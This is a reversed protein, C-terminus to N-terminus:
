KSHRKPEKEREIWSEEQPKPPAPKQWKNLFPTSVMRIGSGANSVRIYVYEGPALGLEVM